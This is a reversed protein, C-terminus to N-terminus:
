EPGLHEGRARWTRAHTFRAVGLQLTVSVSHDVRDARSLDGPHTVLAIHAEGGEDVRLEFTDIGAISDSAYTGSVGPQLTGPPVDLALIEDDDTVRLAIADNDLDFRLPLRGLRLELDLVDRSPEDGYLVGGRIEAIGEPQYWIPSSWAREQTVAELTFDDAATVCCDAFGEGAAEAQAACNNAFPDVGAGKCVLTSWRCTPNELLRVYYFARQTRDFDPDEWVTCLERAGSGVTACTSPDVTAGNNADGAVDFVHEHTEGASDVWGKVIQARQLDTGPIASTGPDKAALVVFRPSADGRVPGIEGGMPTGSRYAADVLDARDCDIDDLAGGFFRLVPRTGTTAYTERRKLAAFIADRSNEEAWAVALGGPNNRMDNGIQRGPSSDSNGQGGEWGVEETNGPTANHSDTSGVFGLQFPNVGLSGELRLGDKLANRVVNRTPYQDIPLPM